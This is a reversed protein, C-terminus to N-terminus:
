INYIKDHNIKTFSIRYRSNIINTFVVRFEDRTKWVYAGGLVISLGSFFSGIVPLNSELMQIGSLSMGESKSPIIGLDYNKLENLMAKQHVHGKFNIILGKSLSELHSKYDNSLINGYITISDIFPNFENLYEIMEHFNKSPDVIGIFVIKVRKPIYREFNLPKYIFNHLVIKDQIFQSYTSKASESPVLVKSAHEFIKNYDQENFRKFQQALRHSKIGTENEAKLWMNEQHKMSCTPSDILLNESRIYKALNQDVLVKKFRFVKLISFAM